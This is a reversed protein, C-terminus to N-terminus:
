IESLFYCLVLIMKKCAEINLNENPGHEFSDAGLIGTCIIDTNPYKTQFYSIFPISGGVGKFILENGFYELSAKNLVTRTRQSLNSLQWGDAPSMYGLSIKAGFYTNNSLAKSLADMAINSNVGPPLRSSMRIKISKNVTFGNDEIQPCNDIGLISCTPKWRNNIMAEKVNTKLPKVGEYLPIDDFFKDGVVEIEKDMEKEIEQPIEKVYFEDLKIEGTNTDMIGDLAKRLLFLNEAIRGSYEPGFHCDNDLTQINIDFDAVGRLSNTIWLRDYDSCGSDLPIFATVNNGISPILKNFYYTM